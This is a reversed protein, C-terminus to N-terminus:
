YWECPNMQRNKDISVATQRAVSWDKTQDSLDCATMFLCLLLRRQDEKHKQFEVLLKQQEKFVTFHTALDTASLWFCRVVYNMMQSVCHCLMVIILIHTELVPHAFILLIQELHLVVHFFESMYLILWMKYMLVLTIFLLVEVLNYVQIDVLVCLMFPVLLLVCTKVYWYLEVLYLQVDDRAVCVLCFNDCSVVFYFCMCNKLPFFICILSGCSWGQCYKIIINYLAVIKFRM